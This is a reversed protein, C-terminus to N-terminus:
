GGRHQEVLSAQLAAGAAVMARMVQIVEEDSDAEGQQEHWGRECEILWGDEPGYRWVRWSPDGDCHEGHYIHEHFDDGTWEGEFEAELRERMTM